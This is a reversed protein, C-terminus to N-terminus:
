SCFCSSCRPWVFSEMWCCCRCVFVCFAVRERCSVRERARRARPVVTGSRVDRGGCGGDRVKLTKDGREETHKGWCCLAGRDSCRLLTAACSGRRAAGQETNKDRTDTSIQATIRQQGTSVVQILRSRLAARHLFQESPCELSSPSEKTREREREELNEQHKSEWNFWHQDHRSWPHRQWSPTVATDKPHQGIENEGGLVPKQQTKQTRLPSAQNSQQAFTVVHSPSPAALALRAPWHCAATGEPERPFCPVRTLIRRHKDFWVM